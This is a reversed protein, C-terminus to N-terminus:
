QQPPFNNNNMNNPQSPQSPQMPQTPQTPGYNANYNTNANYNYNANYNNQAVQPGVYQASGFALIPYCVFPFFAMLIGYGVSKGFAKSLNINEWFYLALPGLCGVFPIVVTFCLFYWYTEIGGLEMIVIDSHIPILSEWPKRNAKRFIIWKAIIVIISVVLGVLFIGAFAAFFGGIASGISDSGSSYYSSSPRSYSSYADSYDYLDYM